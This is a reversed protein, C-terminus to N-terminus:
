GMFALAAAAVAAAIPLISSKKTEATTVQKEIISAQAAESEDQIKAAEAKQKEMAEAYARAAAAASASAAAAAGKRAEEAEAKKWAGSLGCGNLFEKLTALKLKYLSKEPESAPEIYKGKWNYYSVAARAETGLEPYNYYADNYENLFSQIPYFWKKPTYNLDIGLAQLERGVHNLVGAYTAAGPIIQRRLQSAISSEGGKLDKAIDREYPNSISPMESNFVIDFIRELDGLCGRVTDGVSACAGLCAALVGSESEGLGELTALMAM